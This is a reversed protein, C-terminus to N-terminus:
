NKPYQIRSPSRNIDGFKTETEWEVKCDCKFDKITSQDLNSKMIIKKLKDNCNKCNYPGRRSGFGSTDMISPIKVSERVRNLVELVSWVRPPQYSGKRWLEEMVTGKHITSPCFSVRDVGKEEAYIATQVAEEIADKESTLIPKILVYAKSKVNYESKLGKIVDVAKEFDQKNFGKNVKFERTYDDSTELGMSIEFIKEPILSCCALVEEKTVYEPRSEVIVESVNELGDLTNLIENRAELPFESQNLFSGSTFIKIATPENLEYRGLLDNFIEVLTAASVPELSSESIYSCMTCGGSEALAWACGTTPLIMFITPGEGSYTLDEHSWTASLEQPTKEKIRKLSKARIEQSLEQIKM